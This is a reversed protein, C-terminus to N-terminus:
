ERQIYKMGDINENPVKDAQQKNKNRM